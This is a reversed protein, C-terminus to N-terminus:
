KKRNALIWKQSKEIIKHDAPTLEMLSKISAQELTGGEKFQLLEACYMCLSLDGPLPARAKAECDEAADLTAGCCPCKGNAIRFSESMPKPNQQTLNM